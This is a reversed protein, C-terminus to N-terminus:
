NLSRKLLNLVIIAIMTLIGYVFYEIKIETIYEM